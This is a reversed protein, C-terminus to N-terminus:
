PTGGSLAKVTVWVGTTKEDRVHTKTATLRYVAQDDTIIGAGRGEMPALGDIALKVLNDLDTGHYPNQGGYKPNGPWVVFDLDVEYRANLPDECGALDKYKRLANRMKGFWEDELKRVGHGRPTGPVWTQPVLVLM